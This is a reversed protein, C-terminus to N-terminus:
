KSLKNFDVVVKVVEVVVVVVVLSNDEMDDYDLDTDLMIQHRLRRGMISSSKSAPQKNVGKSTKEDAMPESGRSSKGQLQM